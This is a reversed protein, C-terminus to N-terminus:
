SMNGSPASSPSGTQYRETIVTRCQCTALIGESVRTKTIFNGYVPLAVAALLGIIAVVIMLNLLSFGPGAPNRCVPHSACRRPRERFTLNM